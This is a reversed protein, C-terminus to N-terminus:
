IKFFENFDEDILLSGNQIQDIIEEITDFITSLTLEPFNLNEGHALKCRWAYYQDIKKYYISSSSVILQVRLMFGMDQYHEGEVELAKENIYDEFQGWFLVFYAFENMRSLKSIRSYESSNNSETAEDIMKIYCKEAQFYAERILTYNKM